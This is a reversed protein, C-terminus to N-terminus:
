APEWLDEGPNVDARDTAEYTITVARAPATWGALGLAAVVLLIGPGRDFTKARM